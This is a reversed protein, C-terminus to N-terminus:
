QTSQSGGSRGWTINYGSLHKVRRWVSYSFPDFAAKATPDTLSEDVCQTILSTCWQMGPTGVATAGANSVNLLITQTPVFRVDPSFVVKPGGDRGTWSKVTFTITTKAVTCPKAWYTPGYGSTAPDCIAAAPIVIRSGNLPGFAPTGGQMPDITFTNITTDGRIVAPPPAWWNAPAVAASRRAASEAKHATPETVGNDSCAIFGVLGSCALVNGAAVAVRGARLHRVSAAINRLKM